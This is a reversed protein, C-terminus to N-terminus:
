HLNTHCLGALRAPLFTGEVNGWHHPNSNQPRLTANRVKPKLQAASQNGKPFAEKITGAFNFSFEM